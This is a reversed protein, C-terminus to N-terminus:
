SSKSIYKFLQFLFLFPFVNREKEGGGIETRGAPGTQSGEVRERALDLWGPEREEGARWRPGAWCALSALAAGKEGRQRASSQTGGGIGSGRRAREDADDEDLHVRLRVRSQGPRGDAGIGRMLRSGCASAREIFRLGRADGARKVQIM